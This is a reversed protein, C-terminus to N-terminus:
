KDRRSNRNRKRLDTILTRIAWGIAEGIETGSLGNEERLTTYALMNHLYALVAEAQRLEPETLGTLEARLSRGIAELRERRRYGRVHRGLQSFALVRVLGPREDFDRAGEQYLDAVEDLDRPYPHKLLEDGIWRGAAELLEERTPYYRYITRLSVGSAEAVAPVTVEDTDGHELLDAVARLIRERTALAHQERLSM